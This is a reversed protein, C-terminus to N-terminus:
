NVFQSVLNVPKVFAKSKVFVIMSKTCPLQTVSESNKKKNKNNKLLALSLCLNVMYSLFKAALCGGFSCKKHINKEKPERIIIKELSLQIM